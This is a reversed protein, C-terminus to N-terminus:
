RARVSATNSYASNGGSNQARVRYYYLARRQVSRDTYSTANAGVRAIQVFGSGSSTSREILFYQENGSRDSWNLRIEAQRPSTASLNGPAAPPPSNVTVSAQASSTAGSNDTVTLTATYTGAASYAHSTTAGTGTTGDGFNWKYTTITGDQDRSGSGNFQILQGSTGSYPGGASAVPKQNVTISVVNSGVAIGGNDTVIAQLSYNGAAVNSWNFSYPSSTDTGILQNNSYFQMRSITGDSDSANASITITAPANYAAGTSPSTLSVTPAQNPVPTPDPEPIITENITIKLPSSTTVMGTNDIAVGTLLYEGVETAYWHATYPSTTASGIFKGDVYYEVRSVAGDSDTAKAQLVVASYTPYIMGDYPNTMEIAPAASLTACSRIAKNVNLRGGTATIGALSSTSDVNDLIASKLTATDLSCRSLLLAAAGSVHPTAMSTGSWWDYGGGLTTSLVLVGPAGLDVSNAGYNSFSALADRNDTAAVSIVNPADYSAPYFPAADNDDSVRDLGGNGASAVFLMDASEAREIQDLLAQSADGNWGWSNSLVRVNAANSGVSDAFAAKAQITFEIADIADELTGSGTADIFKVGMISTTWNVGTVGTGNNGVAGITGAVHTGHNYEDMPDCTKTIANFGHTGAECRITQGGITVTFPYPASWMNAALDPHNYDVGTDVVAVVSSGSGTSIDWAAAASIDAGPTGADGVSQGTNQLGWEQSFSSDNPLAAVRIVYNPEVYQVDARQRLEEILTATDKSRSRFLRLGTGGVKKDLETDAKGRAEEIGQQSASKRFKVLVEGAVVEKGKFFEKKRGRRAGQAQGSSTVFLAAGAILAMLTIIVFIYLTKGTQSRRTGSKISTRNRM